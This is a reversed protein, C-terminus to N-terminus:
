DKKQHHFHQYIELALTQNIGAVKIIEEVPARALAQIGGFRQLLAQRRKTGIGPISTL